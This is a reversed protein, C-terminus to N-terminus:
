FPMDQVVLLLEGTEAHTTVMINDYTSLVEKWQKGSKPISWEVITMDNYKEQLEKELKDLEKSTEEGHKGFKECINDFGSQWEAKHADAVKPDVPNGSM